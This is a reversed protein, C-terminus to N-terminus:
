SAAGATSRPGGTETPASPQRRPRRDAVLVLAGPVTAVLAMVGYLAAVTVGTAAGLGAAGFAWAAAGERPGWGAASAPLAAVLLVVLALSLRQGVPAEVGATRMAVLFVAVHGMVVVTSSLVIPLAARRTLIRRLEAGVAGGARSVLGGHAGPAARALLAGVVVLVVVLVAAWALSGPRVPSPLVLLLAVTLVVQVGQGLAREWVVSRVGRGLAQVDRGHRVARHVDGLVGTPLTLNLLQSRYYAAVADRLRIDVDLGRAVVNWRWACCVTTVVTIGVASALAWWTLDDVAALFPEAGLRALLVGIIAIGCAPRAWTVWAHRRAAAPRDTGGQVGDPAPSPQERSM